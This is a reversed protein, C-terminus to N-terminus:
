PQPPYTRAIPGTLDSMKLYVRGDGQALAFRGTVGLPTMVGFPGTTGEIVFRTLIPIVGQEM